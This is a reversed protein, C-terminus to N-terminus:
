LLQALSESLSGAALFGLGDPQTKHGAAGSLFTHLTAGSPTWAGLALNKEQALSHFLSSIVQSGGGPLQPVDLSNALNLSAPAASPASHGPVIVYPNINFYTPAQIKPTGADGAANLIDQDSLELNQTNVGFGSQFARMIANASLGQFVGSPHFADPSWYDNTRTGALTIFPQRSLNGLSVSDVLVINHASAYARLQQNAANAASTLRGLSIPNFLLELQIAPTQGIDPVLGLVQQVQGGSAVTSLANEINAVVENIFPSPNGSVIQNLYNNEDNGGIELMSYHVLGQQVWQKVKPAQSSAVGASTAGDGAANHIDVQGARLTNLLTTWSKDGDSARGGTYVTTLSDGMTAFSFTSPTTRDELLEITCRTTTRSSCRLTSRGRLMSQYFTM